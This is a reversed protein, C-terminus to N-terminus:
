ILWQTDVIHQKSGKACMLENIRVVRFTPIIIIVIESGLSSGLMVSDILLVLNHDCTQTSWFGFSRGKYQTRLIAIYRFTTEIYHYLMSTLIKSHIYYYFKCWDQHTDAPVYHHWPMDPGNLTEGRWVSVCVCVFICTHMSVWLRGEGWKEEQTSEERRTKDRAWKQASEASGCVRYLPEASFLIQWSPERHPQFSDFATQSWLRVIPGSVERIM